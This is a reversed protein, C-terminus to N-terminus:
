IFNSIKRHTLEERSEMFELFTKLDRVEQRRKNLEILRNHIDTSNLGEVLKTYENKKKQYENRVQPVKDNYAKVILKLGILADNRSILNESNSTINEIDANYTQLLIDGVKNNSFSNAYDFFLMDPMPEGRLNFKVQETIITKNDIIMASYPRFANKAWYIEAFKNLGKKTLSELQKFMDNFSLDLVVNRKDEFDLTPYAKGLPCQLIRVYAPYSDIKKYSSVRQVFKTIENLFAEYLDHYINKDSDEKLAKKAAYPNDGVYDLVVISKKAKKVEEILRDFYRQLFESYHTIKESSKLQTYSILTEKKNLDRYEYLAKDKGFFAADIPLLNTLMAVEFNKFSNLPKNLYKYVRPASIGSTESFKKVSIKNIDFVEKLNKM